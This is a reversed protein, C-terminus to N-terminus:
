PSHPPPVHHPPPAALPDPAPHPAVRDVMDEMVAFAVPHGVARYQSMPTKNQFVVRLRAAYDRFRYVGPTLRVTQNGEVASTRPYVSYPGIGTLDDVRMGLITGDRRVAVEATVRHDRAHIDSQFSELR